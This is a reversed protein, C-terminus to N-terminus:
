CLFPFGLLLAMPHASGACVRAVLRSDNHEKSTAKTGTYPRAYVGTGTARFLVTMVNEWAFDVIERLGLHASHFWDWCKVPEKCVSVEAGRQIVPQAKPAFPPLQVM